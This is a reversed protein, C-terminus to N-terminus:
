RLHPSFVTFRHSFTVLFQHYSFTVLISLQWFKTARLSRLFSLHDPFFFFCGFNMGNRFSLSVALEKGRNLSVRVSSLIQSHEDLVAVWSVRKPSLGEM